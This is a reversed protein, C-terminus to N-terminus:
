KKIIAAREIGATFKLKAVIAAFQSAAFGDFCDM